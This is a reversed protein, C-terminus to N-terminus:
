VNSTDDWDLDVVDDDDNVLIPEPREMPASCCLIYLWALTSFVTPCANGAVHRVTVESMSAITQLWLEQPSRTYGYRRTDDQWLHQPM